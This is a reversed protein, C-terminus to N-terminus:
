IVINDEVNDSSPPIVQFRTLYNGCTVVMAFFVLSLVISVPFPMAHPSLLEVLTMGGDLTFLGIIQGLPHIQNSLVLLGILISGAATGVQLAEQPNNPSMKSGFVFAVVLLLFALLWQLLNKSVLPFERALQDGRMMRFLYWPVFLGHILFLSLGEFLLQVSWDGHHTFAILSLLMGQVGLGLVAVRWSHFLLPLFFAAVYAILLNTM